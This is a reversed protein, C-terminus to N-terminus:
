FCMGNGANVAIDVGYILHICKKGRRLESNDEIDDVVLTGTNRVSISHRFVCYCFCVFICCRVM